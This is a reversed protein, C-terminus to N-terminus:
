QSSSAKYAEMEKTYREEYAEMEKTYREKDAAAQKEWKSRDKLNTWEAGAAKTVDYARMGPKFVFRSRNEALWFLYASRGREPANEDKKKETAKTTQVPSQKKSPAM